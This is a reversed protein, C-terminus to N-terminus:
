VWDTPSGPAEPRRWHSVHELHTPPVLPASRAQGQGGAPPTLLTGLCSTCSSEKSLQSEGGGERDVCAKWGSVQAPRHNRVDSRRFTIGLSPLFRGM